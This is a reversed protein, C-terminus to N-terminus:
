AKGKKAQAKVPAASADAVSDGADAAEKADAKSEGAAASFGEDKIAGDLSEMFAAHDELEELRRLDPNRQYPLAPREDLGLRKTLRGSALRLRNRVDADREALSARTPM